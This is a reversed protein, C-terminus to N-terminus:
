DDKTLGTYFKFKRVFYKITSLDFSGDGAYSHYFHESFIYSEMTGSNNPIILGQSNVPRCPCFTSLEKDYHMAIDLRYNLGEMYAIIRIFYNLISNRDSFSGKFAPNKCTFSKNLAYRKAAIDLIWHYIIFISAEFFIGLLVDVSYHFRSIIILLYSYISYLFIVVKSFTNKEYYLWVLAFLTTFCTHGSIILDTCEYVEAFVILYISYINQLLGNSVLPQCTPVPCPITTAYIFISRIMYTFGLILATRTFMTIAFLAPSFLGFRLFSIGMLSLITSNVFEQTMFDPRKFLEHMRDKLPTEGTKYYEDSLIIFYCQIIIGMTFFIAAYLARIYFIKYIKKKDFIIQPIPEGGNEIDVPTGHTSVDLYANAIRKKEEEDQNYNINSSDVVKLDKM